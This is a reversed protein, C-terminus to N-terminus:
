PSERNEVEYATITGPDSVLLLKKNGCATGAYGTLRKGHAYKALAKGYSDLIHLVGDASAFVWEKTADGLLDTALMSEIPVRHQAQELPYEWLQSGSRDIEAIHIKNKEGRHPIKVCIKSNDKGALDAVVFWGIPNGDKLEIERMRNGRPDLEFLTSTEDKPNMALVSPREQLHAIGIQYPDSIDVYKWLETGDLRLARVSCASAGAASETGIGAASETGIGSVLIEPEGDEDLDAFRVDTIMMKDAEAKTKPYFGIVEFSENFLHIRSGNLASAAFLRNGKSDVATRVFTIPEDSLVSKLVIRSRINGQADFHALSNLEYPVLFTPEAGEESPPVVLINGPGKLDRIAFREQFSLNEPFHQPLITADPEQEDEDPLAYYDSEAFEQVMERYEVQQRQYDRQITLNDTKQELIENIGATIEEAPVTGPPYYKALVGGPALMVLSPFLDLHLSLRLDLSTLRCTPLQPMGLDALTKIVEDNSVAIEEDAAANAEEPDTPAAPDKDVCVAIMRINPNDKLSQYVTYMERLAPPCYESKASWFLLVITKEAYQSLPIEKNALSKITISDFNALKKDLLLLPWPTLQKLLVADEPWGMQFAVSELSPNLLADSMDLRLSVVRKGGQEPLNEVPFDWRLLAFTQRDIWFTRVGDPGEVEIKDCPNEGLWEPEVLVVTAKDPLLTKLPDKAFFLLLQPPVWTIQPSIPLNMAQALLLDPYLEPISLKRPAPLELVQGYLPVIQAYLDAGNCVLQGLAVEMRVLNPSQFVFTCPWDTIEGGELEMIITGHDGYSNASKYTAVMKELIDNATIGPFPKLPQGPAPQEASRKAFREELSLRPEVTKAASKPDIKTETPSAAEQSGGAPEPTPEAKKCGSLSLILLVLFASFAQSKSM